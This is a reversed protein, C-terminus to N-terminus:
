DVGYCCFGAWYYPHDWSIIKKEETVPLYTMRDSSAEKRKLKKIELQAVRLSSAKDMDKKILNEYFKIMLESTSNDPVRWLSAIVSPSGAFMFGSPLGIFEDTKEYKIMGTECASLTVMYAQPLSLRTFIDKLTFKVEDGKENFVYLGSALPKNFLFEGHCSFHPCNSDKAHKLIDEFTRGDTVNTRPFFKKIKDIENFSHKLNGTTDCLFSFLKEKKSRKRKICMELIQSSPSYTVKYDEIIYKKKGNIKKYMAHLPIFFLAKHPIFIIKKIGWLEPEIKLFLKKYLINLIEELKDFWNKLTVTGPSNKYHNYADLYDSVDKFLEKLFFDFIIVKLDKEKRVIFACSKDSSLFFEILATDKDKILNQIEKYKIKKVDYFPEYFTDSKKKVKEVFKLFNEKTEKFELLADERKIKDEEKSIVLQLAALKLKFKRDEEKIEGSARPSIEVGAMVEVLNRSKTKELYELAEEFKGLEVLSKVLSEYVVLVKERITTKFELHSLPSLTKEEIIKVAEKFYKVSKKLSKQSKYIEGLGYLAMWKIEPVKGGTEKAKNYLPIAKDYEGLGYYLSAKNLYCRAVSIWQKSDKLIDTARDYLKKAEGFKKLNNYVTGKNLDCRAMDAWRNYKKFISRASDYLSIAKHYKQLDLYINAKNLDCRAVDM